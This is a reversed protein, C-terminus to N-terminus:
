EISLQQVEIVKGEKLKFLWAVGSFGDEFRYMLDGKIIEPPAGIIFEVEEATHGIPNWENLLEEMAAAYRPYDKDTNGTIIKGQYKERIPELNQLIPSMIEGKPYCEKSITVAINEKQSDTHGKEGEKCGNVMFILLLLGMGVKLTAMSSPNLVKMIKGKLYSPLNEANGRITYTDNNGVAWSASDPYPGIRKPGNLPKGEVTYPYFV